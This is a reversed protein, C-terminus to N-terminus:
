EVEDVAPLEAAAQQIEEFWEPNVIEGLTKEGLRVSLDYENGAVIILGYGPQGNGERQILQLNAKARHTVKAPENVRQELTKKRKSM